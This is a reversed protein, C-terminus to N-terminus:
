QMASVLISKCPSRLALLSQASTFGFEKTTPTEKIRAVKVSKADFEIGDANPRFNDPFPSTPFHSVLRRRERM